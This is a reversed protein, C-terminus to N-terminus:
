LDSTLRAVRELVINTIRHRGRKHRPRLERGREIRRDANHKVLVVRPVADELVVLWRCRESLKTVLSYGSDRTPEVRRERARQEARRLLPRGHAIPFGTVRPLPRRGYRPLYPRGKRHRQLDPLGRQRNCFTPCRAGTPHSQERRTGQFLLQSERPRIDASIFRFWSSLIYFSGFGFRLFRRRPSQLQRPSQPLVAHQPGAAELPNM